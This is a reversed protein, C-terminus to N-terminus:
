RTMKDSLSKAVFVVIPEEKPRSAKALRKAEHPMLGVGAVRDRVLAVWRGTYAALDISPHAPDPIPLMRTSM